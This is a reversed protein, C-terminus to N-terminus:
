WPELSLDRTMLHEQEAQIREEEECYPCRTYGAPLADLDVDHRECYNDKKESM